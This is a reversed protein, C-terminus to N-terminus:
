MNLWDGVTKSWEIFFTKRGERERWWGQPTFYRDPAAVVIFTIGPAAARFLKGARRTHYSSTVLLVRQVGLRRLEVAAAAAEQRTSLAQNPFRQFYSAPYGAKSAFPIALDCEYFGYMGEPGSVVARPAYGERVLEAAKLIRNGAMDGAVVFAVDAPQPPESKELFGGVAALARAHLLVAAAAGAAAVLVTLRLARTM